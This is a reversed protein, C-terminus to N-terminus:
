RRQHPLARLEPQASLTAVPQIDGADGESPGEERRVGVEVEQKSRGQELVRRPCGLHQIWPGLAGTRKREEYGGRVGALFLAANGLTEGAPHQPSPLVVTTFARHGSRFARASSNKLRASAQAGVQPRM